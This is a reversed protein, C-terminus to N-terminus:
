NRCRGGRGGVPLGTADRLVVTLGTSLDKVSIAVWEEAGDHTVPAAQLSLRMEAKPEFSASVLARYPALLITRDGSTTTLVLTPRGALPGGTFSRVIGDLSIARAMDPGNGDCAMAGNPGRAMGAAPAASGCNLGAGAGRMGQGRGRGMFLPTGDASRLELTLKRTVNVVTAVAAGDPCSACPYATVKVVDGPEAVFGQASLYRYPGLVFSTEKASADKVALTPMGLGPGAAFRVVTGEVVVPHLVDVQPTGTGPGGGPGGRGQGRSQAQSTSALTLAILVASAAILTKKM